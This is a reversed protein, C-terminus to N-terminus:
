HAIVYRGFISLSLFAEVTDCLDALVVTLAYLIGNELAKDIGCLPGEKFVTQDGLYIQLLVAKAEVIEAGVPSPPHFM